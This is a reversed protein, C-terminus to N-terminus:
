KPGRRRLTLALLFVATLVAAVRLVGPAAVWLAHNMPSGEALPTGWRGKTRGWFWLTSASMSVLPIGLVAFKRTFDSLGRSLYAAGWGLLMVLLEGVAAGGVLLLAAVLLLPSPRRVGAPKGAAPQGGPDAPAAPAAKGRLGFWGRPGPVAAAGPAPEEGARPAPVAVPEPRPGPEPEPEQYELRVTDWGPFVLAAGPLDSRVGPPGAAEPGGSGGPGAQAGPVAPGDPAAPEPEYVSRDDAPGDGPPRRPSGLVRWPAGSRWWEGGGPGDAAGGGAAGDKAAGGDAM